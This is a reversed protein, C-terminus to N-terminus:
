VESSLNLSVYYFCPNEGRQTLFCIQVRPTAAAPLTLSPSKGNVLHGGAGAMRDVMVKQLEKSRTRGASGDKEKEGREEVRKNLKKIAKRM